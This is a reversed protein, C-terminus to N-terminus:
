PSAAVVSQCEAVLGDHDVAKGLVEGHGAPAEASSGASIRNRGTSRSACFRKM